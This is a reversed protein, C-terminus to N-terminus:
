PQGLAPAARLGLFFPFRQEGLQRRRRKTSGVSSPGSNLSAVRLFYVCFVLALHTSTTVVDAVVNMLCLFLNHFEPNTFYM